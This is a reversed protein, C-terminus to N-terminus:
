DYKDGYVSIFASKIYEVDDAVSKDFRWEDFRPLFLSCNDNNKGPTLLDNATVSLIRGQMESWNDFITKRSSDTFGPVDVVLKGDSSVCRVSGFTDANKGSGQVLEVAQLEVTVEAKIKVVDKSTGDKWISNANKLIAGEHGELMMDAAIRKAEQMSTVRSSTIVSIHDPARHAANKCLYDWRQTYTTSCKGNRFDTIPVCDWLLMTVSHGDPLQEGHLCSNLIGNGTQRDLTLGCHEVVLEGMYVMNIPMEKLDTELDFLVGVPFQTGQRSMLEVSDRKVVANCFMGDAKLQVFHPSSEGWGWASIDVNSELSCRMYPVEFILDPWVKNITSVNIGAKVDRAILWELLPRDSHDMGSYREQLYEKAANGTLLRQSLISPLESLIDDAEYWKSPTIAKPMKKIYYNKTPDYVDIFYQQLQVNNQHEKLIAIKENKSNTNAIRNIIQVIKHPINM